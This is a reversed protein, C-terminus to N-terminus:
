CAFTESDAMVAPSNSCADPRGRGRILMSSNRIVAIASQDNSLLEQIEESNIPALGLRQCLAHDLATMLRITIRKTKAMLALATGGNGSYHCALHTLAAHSGGMAFYPLFTTSGLGDACEALMILTGNDRVFAAANDIAKHTQIMNIDKPYGGASALVLDYLGDNDTRYQSDHQRCAELFDEYSRGLRFSAMAGQSDPLGHIAVHPPLMAHIEALDEAIPNGLLQGARCGPHLGQGATDLFLRHNDYIARREGLGPFLLKRGGGFGAFYHHSIAGITIILGASVLDKRIRVPTGRKTSGLEVFLDTQDCRHHVFPYDQFTTGYTALSEEPSQPAHTGYAIYFMIQQRQIGREMLTALVLPLIVPYACRRTKDAVVIAVPGEAITDPLVAALDEQFSRPTFTHPPERIELLRATAPIAWERSDRGYHLTIRAPTM